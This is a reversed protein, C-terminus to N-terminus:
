PFIWYKRLTTGIKLTISKLSIFIFKLGWFQFFRGKQCHNKIEKSTKKQKRFAETWPCKRFRKGQSQFPYKHDLPVFIPPMKGLKLGGWGKEAAGNFTSKEQSFKWPKKEKIFFLFQWIRANSGLLHFKPNKGECDWGIGIQEWLTFILIKGGTVGALGQDWLILNLIKGRLVGSFTWKPTNKPSLILLRQVAEASVTHEGHWSPYKLEWCWWPKQLLQVMQLARSHQSKPFFDWKPPSFSDSKQPFFQKKSPFLFAKKPFFIGLQPM